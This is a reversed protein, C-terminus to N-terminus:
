LAPCSETGRVQEPRDFRVYHRYPHCENGLSGAAKCVM